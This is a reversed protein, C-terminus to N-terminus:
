LFYRTLRVTDAGDQELLVTVFREAPDVAIALARDALFLQGSGGFDSRPPGAPSLRVVVPVGEDTGAVLRDGNSLVELQDFDNAGTGLAAIGGTGFAPQLEGDEDIQFLVSRREGTSAVQYRGLGVLGDPTQAVARVEVSEGPEPLELDVIGSDGFADDLEGTPTRREIRFSPSAVAALWARGTGDFTADAYRATSSEAFAWSEDLNGDLQYRQVDDRLVAPGDPTVVLAPEPVTALGVAMTGELGFGTDVQGDALVAGLYNDEGNNLTGLVFLRDDHGLGIREVTSDDFGLFQGADAFGPDESGDLLVRSLWVQATGTRAAVISRGESDVELDVVQVAATPAALELIGGSGFTTDLDGPAGDVTLQFTRATMLGKTLAQIRIQAGGLTADLDATVELEGRDVDEPLILPSVTVGAPRQPASIDITGSFGTREVTVEFRMAEGRRLRQPPDVLTMSLAPEPTGTDSPTGTDAPTTDGTMVVPPADDVVDGTCGWLLGLGVVLRHHPMLM